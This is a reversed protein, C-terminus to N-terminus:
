QQGKRVREWWANGLINSMTCFDEVPKKGKSRPFMFSFLEGSGYPLVDLIIIIETFYFTAYRTNLAM